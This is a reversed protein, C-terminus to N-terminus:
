ILRDKSIKKFAVQHFHSTVTNRLKMKIKMKLEVNLNRRVISLDKYMHKTRSISFKM